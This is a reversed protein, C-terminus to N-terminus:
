AVRRLVSPRTEAYQWESIRAALGCSAFDIHDFALRLHAEVESRWTQPPRRDALRKRLAIGLASVLDHGNTFQENPFTADTYNDVHARLTERHVAGAFRGASVANVMAGRNIMSGDFFDELDVNKLSYGLQHRENAYRLASLPRLSQMLSALVAGAGGEAGVRDDMAVERLYRDMADTRCLDVDFDHSASHIVDENEALAGMLRDFDADVFGLVDTGGRQQVLDVANLVNSKGWCVVIAVSSRDVFKEFRKFDSPGEMLFFVGKHKQRLLRLEAVIDRPGINRAISNM